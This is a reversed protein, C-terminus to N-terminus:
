EDDYEGSCESCYASFEDGLPNGCEHCGWPTRAMHRFRASDSPLQMFQNVDDFSWDSIDWVFDAGKIRSPSFAWLGSEAHFGMYTPSKQITM